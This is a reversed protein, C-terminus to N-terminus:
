ARSQPNRPRDLANHSVFILRRRFASPSEVILRAKLSEIGGAFFPERLAEGHRETWGPIPLGFCRALHEAVAAVYPDHVSGMLAPREAIIAARRDPYSYFTDLFERIAHDFPDTGAIAREVAEALTAPRDNRRIM